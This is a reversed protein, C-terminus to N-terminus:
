RLWRRQRALTALRDFGVEGRAAARARLRLLLEAAAFADSAANHRAPCVIGYAHLWDDLAGAASRAVDPALVAALPELDLWPGGIEKVAALRAARALVRRDFNAHFAICPADAIWATLANLAEVPLVGSAVAERGLGHVVVNSPHLPGSHHVVTEFSDSARIGREDVAVGGIALLADREPDLGSTETDVVVWRTAKARRRREFLRRMVAM